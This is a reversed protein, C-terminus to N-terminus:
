TTKFHPSTAGWYRYGNVRFPVALERCVEAIIDDTWFWIRLRAIHGEGDDVIRALARVAEGTTHKCWFLVVHGGRHSRVEARTPEPLYDERYRPEVGLYTGLMGKLMGFKSHAPATRGYQMASGVMESATTDMLLATLKEVDRANFAACFADVVAPAPASAEERPEASLKGRGRHLAAKVANPTTTLAQAIEDLSLDFVDKLVVAAREQPALQSLLTGAAERPLQPDSAPAAREPVVAVLEERVRRVRDLWVNSAVRFLWARPNEIEDFTGAIGVFAKALVDQVLDEADYPSRTLHRCYRYLEPRLAEISDHFAFWSTRVQEGNM